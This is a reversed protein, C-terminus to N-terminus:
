RKRERLFEYPILALNQFKILEYPMTTLLCLEIKSTVELTLFSSVVMLSPPVSLEDMRMM